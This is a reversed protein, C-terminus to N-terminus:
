IVLNITLKIIPSAAKLSFNYTMLASNNRRLLDDPSAKIAIQYVFDNSQIRMVVASRSQEVLNSRFILVPLMLILFRLTMQAGVETAIKIM